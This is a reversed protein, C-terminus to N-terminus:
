RMAFQVEVRRNENRGNWTNNSAVPWFEGQGITIIQENKVGQKILYAKLATLRKVSLRYNYEPSGLDDTHCIIRIITEPKTELEKALENLQSFSSPMIRSGKRTFNIHEMIFTPGYELYAAYNRELQLSYNEQELQQIRNELTAIQLSYCSSFLSSALIFIYKVRLRKM